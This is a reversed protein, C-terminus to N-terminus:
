IAEKQRDKIRKEIHIYTCDSDDDKEDDIIKLVDAVAYQFEIRQLKWLKM